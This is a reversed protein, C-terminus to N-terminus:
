LNSNREVGFELIMNITYKQKTVMGTILHTFM